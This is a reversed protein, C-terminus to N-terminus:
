GSEHWMDEATFHLPYCGTPNDEPVRSPTIGIPYHVDAYISTDYDEM